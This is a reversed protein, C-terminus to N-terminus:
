LIKLINLWEPRNPDANEVAEPPGLVKVIGTEAVKGLVDGFDRFDSLKTSLVEERMRQRGEETDNTLRRLMGVFGRADPLLHSDINGIAGIIAKTMEDDNLDLNKLFTATGDFADLTKLLNPDRYSVFTLTGSLRDFIGSAGYAGGQVRVREWLWSTRLYSMIVLVSGHFRYGLDYLNAGKGVYNVKAPILMGEAPVPLGPTWDVKVPPGSPFSNLFEAIRSEIGSWGTRDLTASLVMASRNLLRQRIDELTTVVGPWDSDLSEALERLFLLYNLGSMQEAVWDAENFHARLRLNVVHHGQPVIERERRAKEELVMQKFRNRDDLKVTLLVDRLIALLDDTQGLMSKARLLLWAAGRENGDMASTFFRPRIGGTKRYIRQTLTVFDERRTGMEVLARGFLPIYSLHSQPLSHLDLGIDLYTIGNTFIDHYLVKTGSIELTEEPIFKNKKELDAIKLSPITALAEPPDPAEQARRLELTNRAVGELAHADMSRRAGNLRNEEEAKEKAGREPDPKLILTTRHSNKLFFRDITEEFFSPNSAAESKIAALPTEFAVIALPDGDHLWTTLSRLMLALGRPFQGANNERLRFEITNLAAETALPDIGKAALAALTNLVLEEIRQANKIDIGKLGTSFTIQRLENQIGGGALDEGLGSDILAKRLPSGPMGLLIHELIQFTFNLKPDLTEALLWNITIMGKEQTNRGTGESGVAFAREIRRPSHFPQQLPIISDPNMPQFDKLYEDLIRLRAEPDDDGCFFIRANSPHYFRRHFETFAEFTLDPIHAPDGGSDLGYTNDPFLSHQSYEALLSDPSSYVGKMENYVVGKFSLASNPTELEHHWGEQQLVFPTLRPHFVADLYVDILNYFDEVNQSAVPYCTKDPYTFANLFTKLSGKLLEVFPEKVPYKRSGCLVSHELIHAVGTSDSPPTRFTIGFSKNEDDNILSLLEAGTQVHRYLRAQTKLEAITRDWICEFGHYITM